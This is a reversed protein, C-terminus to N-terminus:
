ADGRIPMGLFQVFILTAAASLLIASGIVQVPHRRLDSYGIVIALVFVAALLGSAEVLWGFLAIGLVLFGLPVIPWQRPAPPGARLLGKAMNALGLLVLGVSLILPFYGPRMATLTGIPYRRVQSAAVLGIVVFVLGALIDRPARAHLRM